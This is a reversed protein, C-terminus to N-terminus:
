KLQELMSGCVGAMKHIQSLRPNLSFGNRVPRLISKRIQGPSMKNEISVELWASSACDWGAHNGLKLQHQDTTWRAHQMMNPSWLGGFAQLVWPTPFCAALSSDQSNTSVGRSWFGENWKTLWLCQTEWTSDFFAINGPQRRCIQTPVGSIPALVVLLSIAKYILYSRAEKKGCITWIQAPCVSRLLTWSAMLKTWGLATTSM